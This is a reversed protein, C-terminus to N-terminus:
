GLTRVAASVAAAESDHVYADSNEEMAPRLFARAGMKVTGRELWLPLNAPRGPVPGVDVVFAQMEDREVVRIADATKGEGHTKSLLITKARAQVRRATKQAVDRLAVTISPPLQEVAQSVQEFGTLTVSGRDAM